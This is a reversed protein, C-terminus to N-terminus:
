AEAALQSYYLRAYAGGRQLLEEHSGQEIINGNELVLIIDVNKITSLRHAIVFSTKGQTLLEFAKSILRETRTDINSTAEDLILVPADLLMARAISILQKQGESLSGGQEGIRTDYGKELSMVFDHCHALRAARIIDKEPADPMGYAINDRITDEFLWTDQLVMGFCSRLSNRTASRINVGDISIKGSDVDYFRMLLNVLTTKGSGTRGVIAVKKGKLALLNFDRILETDETYSFFVSDFLINGEVKEKDLVVDGDPSEEEGSLFDMVREASALAAQLQTLVNSIDNFPRSYKNSYMLFSGISGVSLNLLIGFIGAALYVLNNVFRASPNSLSSYFGAKMSVGWLQGNVKRFKEVTDEQYNFAIVVKQGSIYEQCIGNLEGVLRQQEKFHKQTRKTIFAAVFISLPTLFIVALAVYLNIYIMFGIIGLITVIGSFLQYFGLLVGDGILKVDNIFRSITDGHPHADLYKLSLRHLKGSMRDRINKVTNQTLVNNIYASFYSAVASIFYAAAVMGAAKYLRGFDVMGKGAIQNIAIGVLYPGALASLVEVLALMFSLFLLGKSIKAVRIIQPILALNIRNKAKESQRARM